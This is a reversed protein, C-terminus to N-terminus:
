EEQTLEQDINRGYKRYKDNRQLFRLHRCNDCSDINNETNIIAKAKRIEYDGCVCRCIWRQPNSDFYDVVTFSGFKLGSINKIEKPKSKSQPCVEWHKQTIKKNPKYEIGKSTVLKATKNIPKSTIIKEVSM